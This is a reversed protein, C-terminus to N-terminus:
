NNKVFSWFLDNFSGTEFSIPPSFQVKYNNILIAETSKKGSQYISGLLCFCTTKFVSDVVLKEDNWDVSFCGQQLIKGSDVNKNVKHCTGGIFKVNQEKAKEVTEMGILGGFSPLLSYHVNLFKNEWYSLTEEDIIKHINTVIIDPNLFFLQERLEEVNDKTYKIKKSYINEKEAFQLSQCERDAIVGVIEFNINLIRIANFLFKLTGGSGSVLFVIRIM